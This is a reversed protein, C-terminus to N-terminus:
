YNSNIVLRKDNFHNILKRQKINRNTNFKNKIKINYTNLLSTM